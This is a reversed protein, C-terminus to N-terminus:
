MESTWRIKNFFPSPSGAEEDEWGQSTKGEREEVNAGARIEKGKKRKRNRREGKREGKKQLM